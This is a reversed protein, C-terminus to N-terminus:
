SYAKGGEWSWEPYNFTKLINGPFELAPTFEFPM